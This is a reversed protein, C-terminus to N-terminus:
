RFNHADVDALRRQIVLLIKFVLVAQVVEFQM